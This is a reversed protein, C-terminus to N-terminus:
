MITLYKVHKQMSITLWSLFHTHNQVKLLICYIWAQERQPFSEWGSKHTTHRLPLFAISNASRLMTAAALKSDQRVYLQPLGEFSEELVNAGSVGVVVPGIPVLRHRRVEAVAM